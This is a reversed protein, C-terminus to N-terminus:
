PMNHLHYTEASPRFMSRDVVLGTILNVGTCSVLCDLYLMFLYVYRFPPSPVLYTAIQATSVCVHLSVRTSAIDVYVAVFCPGHICKLM